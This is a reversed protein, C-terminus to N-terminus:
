RIPRNGSVGEDILIQGLQLPAAILRDCFPGDISIRRALSEGGKM